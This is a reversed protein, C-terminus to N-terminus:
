SIHYEKFGAKIKIIDDVAIHRTTFKGNRKACVTILKYNTYRQQPTGLPSGIGSVDKDCPGLKCNLSYTSGAREVIKNDIFKDRRRKTWITFLEKGGDTIQFIWEWLDKEVGGEMISNPSLRKIVLAKENILAFSKTINKNDSSM